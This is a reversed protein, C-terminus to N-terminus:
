ESFTIKSSSRAQWFNKLVEKKQSQGQKITTSTSHFNSGQNQTEINNAVYKVLCRQLCTTQIISKKSLGDLRKRWPWLTTMFFHFIRKESVKKTPYLNPSFHSFDHDAFCLATVQLLQYRLKNGLDNSLLNLLSCGTDVGQLVSKDSFHLNQLGRLKVKALKHLYAEYSIWWKTNQLQWRGQPSGAHYVDILSWTTHAFKVTHM